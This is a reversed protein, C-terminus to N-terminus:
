PTEGEETVEPESEEVPEPLEEPTPTAAGSELTAIRQKVAENEPNLALVRKAVELAKEDEGQIEYVASLYWLANSYEPAIGVIRELEARAADYQELRALMLGLQLGLGVDTPSVTTLAYLRAAADELKNQREYVAALYYHAPAYDGKLEVAKLLAAEAAALETTEADAAQKAFAEDEATKLSRARDAVVLHVRGLDTQHIPNAPELAVAREFTAAAYDEAGQSFPMVERYVRGLSSWNVAVNPELQAARVGANVAKAADAAVMGLQEQTPEAGAQQLTNAASLLYLSSLTRAYRSDLPNQGSAKEVQTIVDAVSAGERGMAVAKAFALDAAYRQGTVFIGGIMVVLLLVFGFSAALGARPSTGFDKVLLRGGVQSALLGTLLWFTAQLTMNSAYLVHALAILTWGIFLVYTMRWEEHDREFVLRALAKLALVVVMLVWLTAGIVGLTALTTIVHSKARDFSTNWFVTANLSTPKYQLYDIAFTGPGSGVALRIPSASLTQKAIDFSTGYSPSVIIPLNLNLPTPLFLFVASVILVIFPLIFKGPQSFESAQLFGFGALLLVGVICLTWLVWFDTALLTFLTFVTVLVVLVRGITGWRGSFIPEGNVTPSVLWAGLGLFMVTVLFVALMNITGVTNFGRVGLTLWGTMTLFALLGGVAASGLLAFLVDRQISSSGAACMVYLALAIFTVTTLASTYEQADAGVWTQYGALSLASSAIVTVGLLVPLFAFWGARFAIKRAVVMSGLWSVLSVSTLLVIVTQKNIELAESTWPLFFVPALFALAVLSWRSIAHLWHPTASVM